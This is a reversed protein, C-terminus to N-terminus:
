TSKSVNMQTEHEPAQYAGVLKSLMQNTAQIKLKSPTASAGEVERLVMKLLYYSLHVCCRVQYSREVKRAREIKKEEKKKKYM